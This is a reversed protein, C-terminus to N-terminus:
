QDGGLNTRCKDLAVRIRGLAKPDRQDRLFANCALRMEEVIAVRQQRLRLTATTERCETAIPTSEEKDTFVPFIM